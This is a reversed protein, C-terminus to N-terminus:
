YPSFLRNSFFYTFCIDIFLYDFLRKKLKPTCNCWSPHSFLELKSYPHELISTQSTVSNLCYNLIIYSALRLVYCTACLVYYISDYINMFFWIDNIIVYLNLPGRYADDYELTVLKRRATPVLSTKNPLARKRLSKFKILM